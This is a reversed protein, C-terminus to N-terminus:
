TEVDVDHVVAAVPRRDGVGLITTRTAARSTAAESCSARLSTQTASDVVVCDGLEVAAIAALVAGVLTSDNGAPGPM